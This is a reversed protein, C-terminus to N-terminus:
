AQAMFEKLENDLKAKKKADLNDTNVEIGQKQQYKILEEDLM